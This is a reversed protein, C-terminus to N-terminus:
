SYRLDHNQHYRPSARWYSLDVTVQAVPRGEYGSHASCSGAQAVAAIDVHIHLVKEGEWSETM